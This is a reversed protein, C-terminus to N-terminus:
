AVVAHSRVPAEALVCRAAREGELPRLAIPGSTC